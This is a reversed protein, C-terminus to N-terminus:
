ATPASKTKISRITSSLLLLAALASLSVLWLFHLFALAGSHLGTLNFATWPLVVASAAMIRIPSLGEKEPRAILFFVLAEALSLMMVSLFGENLAGQMM